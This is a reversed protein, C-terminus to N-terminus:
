RGVEGASLFEDEQDICPVDVWIWDIGYERTSNLVTQSAAVTFHEERVAPVKWPTGKVPLAPNGKNASDKTKWRGWTYTLISYKPKATNGYLGTADREVSTM